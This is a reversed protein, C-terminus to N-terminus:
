VGVTQIDELKGEINSRFFMVHIYFLRKSLTTSPPEGADYFYFCVFYIEIVYTQLGTVVFGVMGVIGLYM